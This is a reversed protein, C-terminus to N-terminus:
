ATVGIAEALASVVTQIQEETLEAFLPLSLISSAATETQPFAGHRWGRDHMAPQLHIPIPYHIGAGIGQQNLTDKIADRNGPVRVCYIHYVHRAGSMEVPTIIGPVDRLLATYRAAHRRRAETWDELHHLKVDLIAAQLSDLRENYGIEDHYYKRASGHDRLKKMREALATDNTLVAGAEGYAGLNKGPYFSFCAAAGWSGARKGYLEAAHAQAADEIILLGHRHAIETLREMPAIQGYLHVPLIARTMPTIAAEVQDPDINYTIPDIDVLVPTAGVHLIAEVTAFFTNAVTIVEHGRGIGLARLALMIAATGNSCGVAYQAGQFAAFNKEFVNLEQGGVFSTNAVVRAMASDIENKITAYQAKLDVLPINAM